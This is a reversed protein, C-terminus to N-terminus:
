PTIHRASPAEPVFPIELASLVCEQLNTILRRIEDSDTLVFISGDVAFRVDSTSM